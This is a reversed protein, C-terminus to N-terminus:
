LGRPIPIPLNQCGPGSGTSSVRQWSFCRSCQAVAPTFQPAPAVPWLFKYELPQFVISLMILQWLNNIQVSQFPNWKLTNLSILLQQKKEFKVNQSPTSSPKGFLTDQNRNNRFESWSFTLVALRIFIPVYSHMHVVHQLIGWIYLYPMHIDLFLICLSGVM